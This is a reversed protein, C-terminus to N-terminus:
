FYVSIPSRVPSFALCEARARYPWLHMTIINQDFRKLSRLLSTQIFVFGKHIQVFHLEHPVKTAERQFLCIDLFQLNQKFFFCFFFWSELNHTASTIWVIIIYHWLMGAGVSKWFLGSQCTPQGELPQEVETRGTYRQWRGDRATYQEVALLQKATTHLLFHWASWIENRSSSKKSM